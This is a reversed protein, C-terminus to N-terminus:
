WSTELKPVLESPSWGCFAVEAHQCVGLDSGVAEFFHRLFKHNQPNSDFHIDYSTM